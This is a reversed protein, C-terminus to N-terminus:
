TCVKRSTIEEPPYHIVFVQPPRTDWSLKKKARGRNMRRAQGAFPEQAIRADERSLDSMSQIGRSLEKMLPDEMQNSLMALRQANEYGTVPTIVSSSFVREGNLLVEYHEGQKGELEQM